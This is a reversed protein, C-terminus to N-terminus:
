KIPKINEDHDFVFIDEFSEMGSDELLDYNGKEMDVKTITYVIEMEIDKAKDGVKYKPTYDYKDMTSVQNENGEWGCEPCVYDTHATDYNYDMEGQEFCHGCHPCYGYEGEIEFSNVLWGYTDSLYDAVEDEDLRRYSPEVQVEKPLEVDYGDTEWDINFIRM